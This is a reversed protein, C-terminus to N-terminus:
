LFNEIHGGKAAVIARLRKPFNEVISALQEVPIEDWAKQLARKLADESTHRTACAKNQLISWVSYDLPNADPSNPPWVDRDWVDPFLSKCLSISTKALHAPAWDQQLTWPRNGFHKKAACICKCLSISTKALHAPAWDQQLTWPRNGFHKKAWPDLANRLILQQYIVANIKVNRHVFVLPTKGTATIGAWVM